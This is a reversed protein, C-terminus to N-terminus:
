WHATSGERKASTSTRSAPSLRLKASKLRNKMRRNELETMQQDVILGFREEFTLRAMEPNSTQEMFSRAMANLRMSNLKDVTPQTLM